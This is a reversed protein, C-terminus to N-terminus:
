FPQKFEGTNFFDKIAAFIKFVQTNKYNRTCDQVQGNMVANYDKRLIEHSFFWPQVLSNGNNTLMPEGAKGHYAILNEDNTFQLSVETMTGSRVNGLTVNHNTIRLVDYKPKSAENPYFYTYVSDTSCRSDLKFRRWLTKYPLLDNSKMLENFFAQSDLISDMVDILEKQNFIHLQSKPQSKNSLNNNNAEVFVSTAVHSINVGLNSKGLPEHSLWVNQSDFRAAGHAETCESPGTYLPNAAYPHHIGYQRKQNDGDLEDPHCIKYGNVISEILVSQEPAIKALKPLFYDLFQDM